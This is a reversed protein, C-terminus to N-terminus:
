PLQQKLLEFAENRQGNEDLEKALKAAHVLNQRDLGSSILAQAAISQMLLDWEASGESRGEAVWTSEQPQPAIPASADLNNWDANDRDFGSHNELKAVPYWRKFKGDYVARGVPSMAMLSEIEDYGGKPAVIANTSWYAEVAGRNTPSVLAILRSTSLQGGNLGLDKLNASQSMGWVWIGRSPGLSLHTSIFHQFDTLCPFPEADRKPNPNHAAKLTSNTSLLEDWILLKPAPLNRYAEVCNMMWEAAAIPNMMLIDRSELIDVHSNWYGREKPDGKPDVMMIKVSPYKQRLERIAVSISIGKGAGPTGLIIASQPNRGLDIAFNHIEAKNGSIVASSPAVAVMNSQTVIPSVPDRMLGTPSANQHQVVADAITTPAALVSSKFVSPKVAQAPVDVIAEAAAETALQHLKEPSATLYSFLEKPDLQGILARPSEKIYDGYLDDFIDVVRVWEASRDSPNMRQLVQAVVRGFNNILSYEAKELANLYNYGTVRKREVDGRTSRDSSLAIAGVDAGSLPIPRLSGTLMGERVTAQGYMFLGLCGVPFAFAQAGLFAITAASALAISGSLQQGGLSSKDADGLRKLNDLRAKLVREVDYQNFAEKLVLNSM